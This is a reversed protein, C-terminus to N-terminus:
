ILEENELLKELEEQEQEIKIEERTKKAFVFRPVYMPRGNWRIIFYDRGEGVYKYYRGKRIQGYHCSAFL